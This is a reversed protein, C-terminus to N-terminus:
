ATGWIAREVRPTVYVVIAATILTYIVKWTHSTSTSMWLSLVHVVAAAVVLWYLIGM